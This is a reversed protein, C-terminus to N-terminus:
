WGGERGREITGEKEKKTREARGGALALPAGVDDGKM